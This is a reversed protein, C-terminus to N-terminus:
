HQQDWSENATLRGSSMWIPRPEPGEQSTNRAPQKLQPSLWYFIFYFLCFTPRNCLLTPPSLHRKGAKRVTPQQAPCPWLVKRNWHATFLGPSLACLGAEPPVPAPSWVLSPMEKISHHMGEHLRERRRPQVHYRTWVQIGLVQSLLLM